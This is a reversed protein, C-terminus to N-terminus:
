GTPSGERAWLVFRQYLDEGTLVLSAEELEIAMRLLLSVRDNTALLYARARGCPWPEGCGRCDYTCPNPQHALGAAQCVTM